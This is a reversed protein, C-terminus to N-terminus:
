SNFTGNVETTMFVSITSIDLHFTVIDSDTPKQANVNYLLSLIMLSLMFLIINIKM